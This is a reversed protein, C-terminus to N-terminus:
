KMLIIKNSIINGNYRLLSIYVGSSLNEANFSLKYNGAAQNGDFLTAVKQGLMNYIELKIKSKEPISYEITTTPNFPNPYNFLKLNYGDPIENQYATLNFENYLKDVEQQSLAYNYMKIEDILGEFPEQLNITNGIYLDDDQSISGTQDFSNIVPKSNIYLRLEGSATDRLGVLHNWNNGLESEINDQTVSTKIINDDIAFRLENNKIEMGYWIGNTGLSPNIEFGGKCYLYMSNGSLANVKMWLSISFSGSNFDIVGDHPVLVHGNQIEFQLASNSIGEVWFTEEMNILSGDNKFESSDIATIGTNDDFSWHAVLEDDLVVETRFQWLEGETAGNSNVEDVRWFYSTNVKLQSPIFVISDQNHIFPPPNTEGFYLDHSEGGAGATWTLIPNLVVDRNGNEPFPNSSPLPKSNEDLTSIRSINSYDSEISDNVAKARYLYETNSSLASDIYTVVNEDVQGIPLFISDIGAREIIFNSEKFSNDNWELHVTNYNILETALNSPAVIFDPYETLGNIYKELNTYGDGNFDGNRDEYDYPNLGNAIEWDNSMGDHDSDLPVPGTLLIPYGGVDNPSDIIGTNAGTEGGYIAYGGATENIIRRDISDRRPYIAGANALVLQYAEEASQQNIAVYPFPKDVRISDKLTSNIGQVGYSWNDNTAEPSGVVYNSNIYWFGYGFENSYPELIRYVVPGDETAPGPKYYNGVMNIESPRDANAEGGYTSNFMWNYIVNNRFDAYEIGRDWRPLRSSHHALLNHHYSANKGGWIGGYGHAGKEHHAFRLSESIICWQITLNEVNSYFSLTEDISWSASVHDLIVNKCDQGEVADDQQTKDEDGLRVRLYRIIVEDTRVDLQNKALCIGDGPATQGAITIYPNRITLPSELVINGSVKFVVTRPGSANIAERLSGPGSDKLNTVEYVEGGRGGLTYKGHGEATPFALQQMKNENMPFVFSLYILSLFLSLNFGTRNTNSIKEINQVNKIMLTIKKVLDM